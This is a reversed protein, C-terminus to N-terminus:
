GISNPDLYKICHLIACKLEADLDGIWHRASEADLNRVSEPFRQVEDSWAIQHAPISHHLLSELSGLVNSLDDSFQADPLSMLPITSLHRHIRQYRQNNFRLAIDDPAVGFNADAAIGKIDNWLSTYLTRLIHIQRVSEEKKLRNQLRDAHQLQQRVFIYTALIAFVSFTAQVWAALGQHCEIWGLLGKVCEM